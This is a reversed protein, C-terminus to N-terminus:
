ETSMNLLLKSTKVNLVKLADKNVWIKVDDGDVAMNIHSVPRFSEEETIIVVPFRGLHTKVAAIQSSNGKPIFLIHCTVIDKPSAYNVVEYPQTGNKKGYIKLRLPEEIKSKGLVGIIFNGTKFEPNWDIYKSINYIYTTKEEYEKNETITRPKSPKLSTGARATEAKERISILENIKGQMGASDKRLEALQIHADISDQKLQAVHKELAESRAKSQVYKAKAVCSSFFAATFCLLLFHTVTTKM